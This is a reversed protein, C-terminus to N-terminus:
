EEVHPEREEEREKLLDDKYTDEGRSPHRAQPPIYDDEGDDNLDDLDAYRPDRDLAAMKEAFEVQETYTRRGFRILARRAPYMRHTIEDDSLKNIIKEFLPDVNPDRKRWTRLLDANKVNVTGRADGMYNALGDAAELKVNNIAEALLKALDTPVLSPPKPPPAQQVPPAMMAPDVPAGAQPPADIQTNSVGQPGSVGGMLQAPDIAM